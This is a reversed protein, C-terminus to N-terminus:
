LSAPICFFFDIPANADAAVDALIKSAVPGNTYYYYYSLSLKVLKLNGRPYQLAPYIRLAIKIIKPIIIPYM